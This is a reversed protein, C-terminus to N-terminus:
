TSPEDVGRIDAWLERLQRLTYVEKKRVVVQDVLTIFEDVLEEMCAHPTPQSKSLSTKFHGSTFSKYCPWHFGVNQDFLTGTVGLVLQIREAAALHAKTQLKVHVTAFERM